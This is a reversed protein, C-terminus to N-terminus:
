GGYRRRGNRDQLLHHTGCTIKSVQCIKIEVQNIEVRFRDESLTAGPPALLYGCAKGASVRQAVYHRAQPAQRM